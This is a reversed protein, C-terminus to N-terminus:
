FRFVFPPLPGTTKDNFDAKEMTHKGDFIIVLAGSPLTELVVRMSPHSPYFM